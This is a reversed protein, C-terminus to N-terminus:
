WGINADLPGADRRLEAECAAILPDRLHLGQEGIGVHNGGKAIQVRLHCNGDGIERRLARLDNAQQILLLDRGDCPDHERGILANVQIRVVSQLRRCANWCEFVPGIFVSQAPRRDAEVDLRVKSLERREVAM